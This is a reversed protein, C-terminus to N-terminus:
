RAQYSADVVATGTANSVTATVTGGGIAGMFTKFTHSVTGGAAVGAFTKSGYKTKLVITAPASSTNTATVTLVVKGAVVSPQAALDATLGAAPAVVHVTPLTVQGGTYAARIVLDGAATASAQPAVAIGAANTLAQVSTRGGAFTGGTITFTVPLGRVTAGNADVLRVGYGFAQDGALVTRESGLATASLAGSPATAAVAVAGVASTNGAVDSARYEVRHGATGPVTLPATYAQWAGGDIRTEIRSVGSGADTATVTVTRESVKASVVPPTRDAAATITFKASEKSRSEDGPKLNGTLFRLSFGEGPALAPNSGLTDGNDATTGNPIPMDTSFNGFEDAEVIWWITRNAHLSTDLRSYAGENIKIAIRSGETGNPHRFGTGTVRLTGGIEATEAVTVSATSPIELTLTRPVTNTGDSFTVELAGPQLGPPLQVRTFADRTTDGNADLQWAKESASIQGPGSLTVTEGGIRATATLKANPAFAVAHFTWTGGLQVLLDEAGGAHDGPNYVNRTAATVTVPGSTALVQNTATNRVRVTYNAAPTAGRPVTVKRYTQGDPNATNGDEGITFGKSAVTQGAGNALEVTVGTRAEFGSLNFWVDGHQAAQTSTLAVKPTVPAPGTAEDVITFRVSIGRQYDGELLSGTLIRVIHQSGASWNSTFFAADRDTNSPTPWPIEMRWTGDANAQVIGHSRTDAFVAGTAPNTITRTSRLTNPDGSYSADVMFNAVSGRVGDPHKYGTGTIVIPQGKVLANPATVSFPQNPTVPGYSEASVTVPANTDLKSFFRLQAPYSYDTGSANTFAARYFTGHQADADTGTVTLTAGTAGAVNQWTAADAEGNPLAARTSQWQVTMPLDSTAAASFTATGGVNITQGVSNPHETVKPAPLISLKVPNTTVTAGAADTFIARYWRNNANSSQGAVVRLTPQAQSGGVAADAPLDVFRNDQPATTSANTSRQWRVTVPATGGGAAATFSAEAGNGASAAQPQQSVALPTAPEDAVVTFTLNVTRSVDPRTAECASNACVKNGYLTGGLFQLSFTDGPKLNPANTAGAAATPWPIEQRWSGYPAGDWWDGTGAAQIVEWVDPSAYDTDGNWPNTPKPNRVVTGGTSPMFKVGVISGEDGEMVDAHGSKTTWNTGSLVIPEGAVVRDNYTITAGDGHTYTREAAYAPTTLVVGAGTLAVAAAVLGALTRRWPRALTSSRPAGM